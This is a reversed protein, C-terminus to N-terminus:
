IELEALQKTTEEITEKLNKIKNDRDEKAKKKQLICNELKQM